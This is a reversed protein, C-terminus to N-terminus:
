HSRPLQSQRVTVNRGLETSLFIHSSYPYLPAFPLPHPPPSPSILDFEKMVRVYYILM